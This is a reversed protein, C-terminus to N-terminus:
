RGDRIAGDAAGFRGGPDGARHCAAGLRRDALGCSFSRYLVKDDAPISWGARARNYRPDHNMEQREQQEQRATRAVATPILPADPPFPMEFGSARRFPINTGWVCRYIVM